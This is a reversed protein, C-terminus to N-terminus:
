WLRGEGQWPGISSQRRLASTKEENHMLIEDIRTIESPDDYDFRQLGKPPFLTLSISPFNSVM